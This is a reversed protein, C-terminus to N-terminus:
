TAGLRGKQGLDHLDGDGLSHSVLISKVGQWAEPPAARGQQPLHTLKMGCGRDILHDLKWFLVSFGQFHVWGKISRVDVVFACRHGAEPSGGLIPHRGITKGHRPDSDPASRM